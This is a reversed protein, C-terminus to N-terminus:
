MHRKQVNRHLNIIGRHVQFFKYKPILNTSTIHLIVTTVYPSMSKFKHIFVIFERRHKEKVRCSGEDASLEDPDLALWPFHNYVRMQEGSSEMKAFLDSAPDESVSVPQTDNTFSKIRSRQVCYQRQTCEFERNLKLFM